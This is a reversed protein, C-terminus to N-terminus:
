KYKNEMEYLWKWRGRGAISPLGARVLVELTDWFDKRKRKAYFIRAIEAYEGKNIKKEFRAATSVSVNLVSNINYFSAGELLMFIVALRKALMIKETKTLINSLVAEKKGSAPSVASAFQEYIRLLVKEELQEKSVHPM